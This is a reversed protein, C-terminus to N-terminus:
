SFLSYFRETEKALEEAQVEHKELAWSNRSFFQAPVGAYKMGPEIRSNKTVITGMGVMCYSGIVGYQHVMAGMGLNAHKMVHSHGALRVGSSLTIGDELICDHAVYSGSM